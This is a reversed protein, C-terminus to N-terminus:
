GLVNGSMIQDSNPLTVEGDDLQHDGSISTAISESIGLTSSQSVTKTPTCKRPAPEFVVQEETKKIKRKPLTIPHHRDISDSLVEFMRRFIDNYEPTIRTNRKKDKARDLHDALNSNRESRYVLMLLGLKAYRAQLERYKEDLDKMLDNKVNNDTAVTASSRQYLSEEELAEIRDAQARTLQVLETRQEKNNNLEDKAVAYDAALSSLDAELRGNRNREHDLERTVKFM